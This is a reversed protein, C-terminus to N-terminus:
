QVGVKGQDLVGVEGPLDDQDPEIVVNYFEARDLVREPDIAGDPREEMDDLPAAPRDQHGM